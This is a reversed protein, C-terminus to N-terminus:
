RLASLIEQLSNKLERLSKKVDDTLGDTQSQQLRNKAGPLTLKESYRFHAIKKVIAIDDETYLRQGTSSKTPKLEPFETEWYRLVYTPINLMRGVEGIRYTRKSQNAM